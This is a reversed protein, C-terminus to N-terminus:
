DLVLTGNDWAYIKAAAITEACHFQKKKKPRQGIGSHLYEITRESINSNETKLNWEDYFYCCRPCPAKSEFTSGEITWCLIESGEKPNPLQGYANLKPEQLLGTPDKNAPEKLLKRWKACKEEWDNNCDAIISAFKEGLQWSLIAKASIRLLPHDQCTPQSGGTVLLGTQAHFIIAICRPAWAPESL